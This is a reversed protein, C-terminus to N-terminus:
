IPAPLGEGKSNKVKKNWGKHDHGVFVVDFGPVREAVVQSANENMPSFHDMSM